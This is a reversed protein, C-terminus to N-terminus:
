FVLIKEAKEAMQAFEKMNSREAGKTIDDDGLGRADM